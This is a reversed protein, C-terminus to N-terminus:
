LREFIFQTVAAAILVVVLGAVAYIITNKASAVKGSDGGSMTYRVGGMIIIIVSVIGAVFYVLGLGQQLTDNNATAPNTLNVDAPTLTIKEVTDDKIVAMLELFKM